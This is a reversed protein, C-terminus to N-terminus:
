KLGDDEALGLVVNMNQVAQGAAGKLLNDIAATIILTDGVFTLGFVCRNSHLVHALTANEGSPLVDVFQEDQYALECKERIEEPDYNPM